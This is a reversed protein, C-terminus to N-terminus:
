RNYQCKYFWKLLVNYLKNLRSISFGDNLYQVKKVIAKHTIKSFAYLIIFKNYRSQTIINRIKIGVFPM